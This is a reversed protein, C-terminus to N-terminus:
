PGLSPGLMTETMCIAYLDNPSNVMDLGPQPLKPSAGAIYILHPDSKSSAGETSNHVSSLGPGCILDIVLSNIVGTEWSKLHFM